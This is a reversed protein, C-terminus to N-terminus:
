SNPVRLSGIVGRTDSHFCLFHLLICSMLGIGLDAQDYQNSLNSLIVLPFHLPHSSLWLAGRWCTAREFWAALGRDAWYVWYLVFTFRGIPELPIFGHWKVQNNTWEELTEFVLLSLIWRCGSKQSSKRSREHCINVRHQTRRGVVIGYKNSQVHNFSTESM